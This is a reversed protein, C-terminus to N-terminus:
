GKIGPLYHRQKQSQFFSSNTKFHFWFIATKHGVVLKVGVSQNVVAAIHHNLHNIVAVTAFATM